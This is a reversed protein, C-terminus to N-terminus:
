VLVAHNAAWSYLRSKCVPIGSKGTAVPVCGFFFQRVFLYSKSVLECRRILLILGVQLLRL